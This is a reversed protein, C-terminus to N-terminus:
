FKVFGFKKLIGAFVVLVVFGITLWLFIPEKGKVSDKIETKSETQKEADIVINNQKNEETETELQKKETISQDDFVVNETHKEEQEIITKKTRYGSLIFMFSVLIILINKM